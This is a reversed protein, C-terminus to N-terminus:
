RRLSRCDWFVSYSCYQLNM